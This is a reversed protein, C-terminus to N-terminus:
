IMKCPCDDQAHFTVIANNGKKMVLLWQKVPASWYVHGHDQSSERYFEAHYKKLYAHLETPGSKLSIVQRSLAKAM